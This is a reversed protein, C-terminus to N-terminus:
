QYGGCAPGGLLTHGLQFTTTRLPLPTVPLKMNAYERAIYADLANMDLGLFGIKESERDFSVNGVYNLKNPEITFQFTGSNLCIDRNGMGFTYLFSLIVYTGPKIEAIHYLVENKANTFQNLKIRIFENPDVRKTAPDFKQIAIEYYPLEAKVGMAILAKGSDPQYVATKSIDTTCGALGCAFLIAVFSKRM